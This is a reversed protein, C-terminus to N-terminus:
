SKAPAARYRCISRYDCKECVRGPKAVFDRSVIGQLLRETRARTAGLRSESVDVGRLEAEKLYVVSGDSAPKGVEKLGLAYIEVQTAAQEFSRAEESTKYERVEMQGSKQLIVDVKGMVNASHLPFELRYEMEVIQAMDSGHKAAFDILLKKAGKKYSELVHGSVFPLHFDEDVATAIASVPSMGENLVLESAKQLCYHLSEGYGLGEEFGPTYGWVENFRYMQPCTEYNIVERASLTELQEDGAVPSIRIKPIEEDEKLDMVLENSIEDMFRSQHGYGFNSLALVDRARTIAVYFLKREDEDGGEYRGCDFLDRPIDFWDLQRGSLSSPFRRQSLAPIFVVPWELGKAQHITMLQVANVTSLDESSREEYAQAAYSNMFWCLGRLDTLWNVRRGGMRGATEYDALLANFRGLNAMITCDLADHPDLRWYGLATLIAHYVQNFTHYSSHPGLGKKLDELEQLAEPPNERNVARSWLRLATQVLDEGTTLNDRNWIYGESWFGDPHLWAFIRGLSQAEPRRFLGVKGGVMFPINRERFVELFPSASTKVSRFMVGFDSYQIGNDKRISEISDAIWEAEEREGSHELKVVIGNTKRTAELHDYSVALSDAFGNASKVIAQLSRRNEKLSLKEVGDFIETLRQFFGEDSGRWHYISQRPDGVAFVRAYTAIREILEEQARNVDQYEDVLLYKIHSVVSPKSALKSAVSYMMKGFTLIRNEQLLSDYKHFIEYFTPARKSLTELDVMENWVMNVCRMFDSCRKSYSSHADNTLGISWGVRMLYAMEQNEDFVMHNGFGFNRELIQNAYGHITGIYMEGLRSLAKEGAIREVRDYIRSKMNKAARETFTFAVIESPQVGEVLILYSIRRTLAETKGTGAGAIIRCHRAASLVSDEQEKSLRSPQNLINSLIEDKRM